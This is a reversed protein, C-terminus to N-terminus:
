MLFVGNWGVFFFWFCFEFCLEIGVVFVFREMGCFLKLFGEFRFGIEVDFVSWGM